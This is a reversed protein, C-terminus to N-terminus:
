SFETGVLVTVANDWRQPQPITVGNSLTTDFNRITQWRVLHVDIEMKWAHDHNRIPWGAIGWEYIEPFKISSSSDAILQGNVLLQGNLPLVAQSRWVFGLNLLSDGDENRFPTILISANIGATTGSGTLELRDGPSTGPLNGVAISQREAHGEGVFSAFTFIDIGFGISLMNHVKFAMTPKIDLVPLQAKTVVSAVPSSKPYTNAFGFISELGLGFVFRRFFGIDYDKWNWTFFLHGPPLCAWQM